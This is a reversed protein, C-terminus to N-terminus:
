PANREPRRPEASTKTATCDARHTDHVVRYYGCGKCWTDPRGHAAAFLQHWRDRPKSEKSM